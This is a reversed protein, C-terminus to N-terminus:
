KSTWLLWELRTATNYGEHRIDAINLSALFATFDRDCSLIM